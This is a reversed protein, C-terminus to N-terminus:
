CSFCLYRDASFATANADAFFFYLHVTGRFDEPFVLLAKEERRLATIKPLVVLRYPENPLVAVVMLRDDGRCTSLEPQGSWRMEVQQAVTLEGRFDHPFQLSGEAVTLLSYDIADDEGFVNINRKLFLHYGSRCNQRRAAVNFVKYLICKKVSLFLTQACLLRKKQLAQKPSYGLKIRRPQYRFYTKGNVTYLVLDGVRGSAGNLPSSPQLTGM